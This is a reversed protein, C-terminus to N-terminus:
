CAPFDKFVYGATFFTNLMSKPSTAVKKSTPSLYVFKDGDKDMMACLKSDNGAVIYGPKPDTVIKGWYKLYSTCNMSTIYPYAFIAYNLVQAPDNIVDKGLGILKAVRVSAETTNYFSCKSYDGTAVITYNVNNQLDSCTGNYVAKKWNGTINLLGTVKTSSKFGWGIETCNAVINISSSNVFKWIKAAIFFPTNKFMGAIVTLNMKQKELLEVIFPGEIEGTATNAKLTGKKYHFFHFEDACLALSLIAFLVLTNM